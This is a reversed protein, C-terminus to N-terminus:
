SHLRKQVCEEVLKNNLNNSKFLKKKLNSDANTYSKHKRITTFMFNFCLKLLALSMPSSLTKSDLM